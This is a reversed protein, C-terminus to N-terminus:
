PKDYSVSVKQLTCNGTSYCVTFYLVCEYEKEMHIIKTIQKDNEQTIQQGFDTIKALVFLYICFGVQTTFSFIYQTLANVTKM